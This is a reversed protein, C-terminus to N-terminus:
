KMWRWHVITFAALMAQVIYLLTGLHRFRGLNFVKLNIFALIGLMTASSVATYFWYAVADCKFTYHVISMGGGFIMLSIGSLDINHTLNCVHVSRVWFLHM